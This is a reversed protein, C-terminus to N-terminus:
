IRTTIEKDGKEEKEKKKKVKHEYVCFQPLYFAIWNLISLSLILKINVM